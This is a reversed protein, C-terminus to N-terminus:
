QQKLFVIGLPPLTLHISWSQGHYRIPAAEVGGFNGLNSGGYEAADSNLVERWFGGTPVGIRYNDRPVPTFNCVVIVVDQPARGRRLFSIISNDADNADLWQFGNPSFDQEYMAPQERYFRNVDEVWRQIGRHSPYQTLHWDLSQDHNWENWQGFEGGMFLLKKGPQAVQYGLLMRLNACKQWDDGPMKGLLSQKGYVVEDHSLSLVFNETFAYLLRFTLWNHHYKRHVPDLSMYQLMDHMWGLDWKM